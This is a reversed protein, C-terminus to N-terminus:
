KKLLEKFLKELKDVKPQIVAQCYPANKNSNFYDQHHEDALVFRDFPSVRTVIKKDYIKAQQIANLVEVATKKQDQNRYFIESRYQTGIDAGQRNLTTPDHLTFFVKLLETLSIKKPDFVIQIVEAHGTNGSSVDEYSVNSSGGGSFGSVVSQVGKLDQFIAEMCWFCGGALTITDSSKSPANPTSKSAPEFSLAGSNVCYRMGTETPGDNFIHGLHGGCKACQIEIRQMGHSNDVIQVIKGGAIEKDFSPWGCHSEFKMEDSFLENGCGACTYVGKEKHFLFEGTGSRETGKERLIYYQNESLAKKWEAESKQIMPTTSKSDNKSNSKQACSYLSAFLLIGIITHLLVLNKSMIM